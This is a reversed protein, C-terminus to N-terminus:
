GDVPVFLQHQDRLKFHMRDIDTSMFWWKESEIIEGSFPLIQLYHERKKIWRIPNEDDSSLIDINKTFIKSLNEFHELIQRRDDNDPNFNYLTIDLKLQSSIDFVVPSIKEMEKKSTLLIISSKINNLTEKGVKLIPLGLDFLVKRNKKNSFLTSSVLVIGVGFKKADNDIIEKFSRKFYDINVSINKQEFKKIHDLAKTNTPNAIRIILRKNKLKGNLVVAEDIHRYISEVDLNLMDLYLYINNGFPAPFQGLERKIAKYINRLVLPDGIILLSDNPQIVFSEKAILLANSRYIAVIKWNKQQISSISRYVFSSGFPIAVEMIEGVGLGVNQAVVPVNPLKDVIRGSLIKTSNIFAVGKDDINLGFEDLITIKIGKKIIRINEYTTIIEERDKMVIFVESIDKTFSKQLKTFSTPDFFHFIFNEPTTKPLISEDKCIIIYDSSEAIFMSSINELVDKAVIGDAIFLVRRM